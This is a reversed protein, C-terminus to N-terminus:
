CKKCQLPNQLVHSCILCTLSKSFKPNLEKPVQSISTKLYIEKVLRPRLLMEDKKFEEM